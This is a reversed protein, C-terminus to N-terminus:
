FNQFDGNSGAQRRSMHREKVVIELTEFYYNM